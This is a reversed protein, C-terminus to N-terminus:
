MYYIQRTTIVYGICLPLISSHHNFDLDKNIWSMSVKVKLDPELSRLCVQNEVNQFSINPTGFRGRVTHSQGHNTVKRFSNEKQTFLSAM